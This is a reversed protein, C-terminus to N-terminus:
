AAVEAAPLYGLEDLAAALAALAQDIEAGDLAGICGIRFTECSTLKGPYLIFGRARVAQYLAAFRYGPLPPAHVTFIIPAQVDETLYSRLGLRQLGDRLRAANAQYRALRAPQGGAALYQDLAARFGALVHTPPTFRWQGSRQLYVYQDHLDLALSHSNAASALLAQREALVFAMGPVGELCKNASSVLAAFPVQRALVPLAGFASMSDIILARGAAAVVGAIQELPNLLGTSTECHIVGVHSCEPHAALAAALRRPCVAQHDAFTLRVVRRGMVETLRAMREGYAGNVLVLLTGDRPLLTGIAAEVAFTGSGQLPVCVHSDGADAIALLDSCVSASLQNFAADWSGWDRLMATKTALSTTLPGPTLLVPERM